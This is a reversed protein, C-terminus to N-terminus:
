ELYRLRDNIYFLSITTKKMRNYRV